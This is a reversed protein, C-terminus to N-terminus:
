KGRTLVDLRVQVYRRCMVRSRDVDSLSSGTEVPRGSGVGGWGGNGTVRPYWHRYPVTM